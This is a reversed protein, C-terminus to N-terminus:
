NLGIAGFAIVAALWAAHKKNAEEILAANQKPNTNDRYLDWAAQVESWLKDLHQKAKYEFVAKISAETIADQLTNDIM